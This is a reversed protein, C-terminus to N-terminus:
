YQKKPDEYMYGYMSNAEPIHDGLVVKSARLFKINDQNLRSKDEETMKFPVFDRASTTLFPKKQPFHILKFNSHNPKLYENDLIARNGTLKKLNHFERSTSTYSQQWEPRGLSFNVKNSKIPIGVVRKCEKRGKNESITRFM